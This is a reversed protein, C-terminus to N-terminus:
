KEEFECIIPMHDSIELWKNVQGIEIKKLGNSFRQTGFVYDIHYPREVKKQFYLTSNTEAGQQEGTYKHYLSEIGLERLENM